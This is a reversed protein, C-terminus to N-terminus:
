VTAGAERLLAIFQSETLTQVGQERAADLKQGPEKGVVLYDTEHSVASTARAGLSAVQKRAESRAFHDLAGTFVFTKGRLPQKTPARLAMVQLGAKLLADITRQHREDAFFDHIAQSMKPGIGPVEQLEQHSAYRVAELRQFHDALDRAVATGVDPIGLAYLFRQLEVCTGNQIAEILQRASREAFNELRLLDEVALQFVDALDKVVGRDVLTSVTETGLHDIDLGEPAVFHEIRRKLQARCGAQNPCLAYPGRQIVKTGCSPCQSPMAFPAQRKHGPEDLREIVEPIVDGARQLHVLDGVRVDKRQVETPNHLSARSMTVGGVEVPRLLAVPTLLGTRGVQVVIDEVRTVERRPEFKYAMAWRPHHTTAGLQERARLDNIKIVIGDIQYALRDRAETWHAYHEMIADITTAVAITAPVHLGWAHLAELAETDTAFKEGEAAVIEYAIFDLRRAATIRPDLQRLSGAAANRPNAFPENGAELLQRNLAEFVAIHMIVEGRLALFPPVTHEDAHLRLPVARITKVNESVGEGQRGDGRTAARELVGDRYVLEVSAGDFKEELLYEVNGGLTKRVRAEFRQVEAAQHAADLSLMPATHQVVPFGQRPEAGVRQTPSDPTILEPFAEELQKLATFLRDYEEDSIEPRNMVYYLYDHRRIERRLAEIHQKAEDPSGRTIDKRLLPHVTAM